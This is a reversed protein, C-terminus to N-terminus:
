VMKSNGKQGIVFIPENQIAAYYGGSLADALTYGNALIVNTTDFYKKGIEVSTESRNAGSIREVQTHTLLEQEISESVVNKGGIITIKEPKTEKIRKLVNSPIQDKGTLLIPQNERGAVPGISLADALGDYGNVIFYEDSVATLENIVAMSTDVRDKGHLRIVQYHQSLRNEIDQSIVKEGGILYVKKVDLRELENLVSSTITQSGILLQSAKTQNTLLVSSLADATGETSTLIATDTSNHARKSIEIATEIRNIGAIRNANAETADVSHASTLLIFVMIFITIIQKNWKRM